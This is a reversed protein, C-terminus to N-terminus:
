KQTLDILSHAVTLVMKVHVHGKGQQSLGPEGQEAMVASPGHSGQTIGKKMWCLPTPNAGDIGNLCQGEVAEKQGDAVPANARPIRIIPSSEKIIPGALLKLIVKLAPSLPKIQKVWFVWKKLHCTQLGSVQLWDGPHTKNRIPSGTRITEEPVMGQVDCRFCDGWGLSGYGQHGM